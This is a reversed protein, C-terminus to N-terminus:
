GLVLNKPFTKIIKPQKGEYTKTYLPSLLGFVFSRHLFFMKYVM